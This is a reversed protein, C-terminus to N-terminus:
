VGKKIKTYAYGGAGVLLAMGLLFVGLVEGTVQPPPQPPTLVDQFFDIPRITGGGYDNVVGVAFHVHPPTTAANGSQDCYGIVQGAAVPGTVRDPLLHAYYAQTGDEGTLLITYGGLEFDQAMSVGDFVALVPTGTPAFVDAATEGDWHIAPVPVPFPFLFSQARDM